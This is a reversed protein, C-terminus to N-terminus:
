RSGVEFRVSYSFVTPKKPRQFEIQSFAHIMCRRFAQGKMATRPQRVEPNGGRRGVLLDVGFTGGKSPEEVQRYCKLFEDFHPAIAQRFPAKSADDNPGGGIHLGINHVSVEPLSPSPPGADAASASSSVPAASSAVPSPAPPSSVALAFEKVGDKKLRDVVGIVRAAAASEDATLVVKVSGLAGTRGREVEKAVADLNPEPKGDVFMAGDAHILVHVVAGGASPFAATSARPPM